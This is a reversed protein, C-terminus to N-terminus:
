RSAISRLPLSFTLALAVPYNSQGAERLVQPALASVAARLEQSPGAEPGGAGVLSDIGARQVDESPDLCARLLAAVAVEEGVGAAAGLSRVTRERVGAAPDNVMKSAALVAADEGGAILAGLAAAAACRVAPDEMVALRKVHTLTSSAGLPLSSGETGTWQAMAHLALLKSRLDIADAPDDLVRTLAAAVEARAPGLPPREHPVFSAAAQKTGLSSPRSALLPHLAAVRLLSSESSTAELLRELAGPVEAAHMQALKRAATWREFSSANVDRLTSSVGPLDGGAAAGLSPDLALGPTQWFPADHAGAGHGFGGSFSASVSSGKPPHAGTRNM